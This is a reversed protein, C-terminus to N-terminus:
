RRAPRIVVAAESGVDLEQGYPVAGGDRTQVALARYHGNALSLKWVTSPAPAVRQEEAKLLVDGDWLQLEVADAGGPLKWVIEREFPLLGFGGKWFFLGVGVIAVLGLRAAFGGRSSATGAM